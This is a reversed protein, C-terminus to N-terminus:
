PQDDTEGDFLPIATTAGSRLLKLGPDSRPWQAAIHTTNHMLPIGAAGLMTKVQVARDQHWKREISSM